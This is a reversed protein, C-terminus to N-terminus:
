KGERQKREYNMVATEDLEGQEQKLKEKEEEAARNAAVIEYRKQEEFLEALVERAQEVAAVAAFRAVELQRARETAWKVFAGYTSSTEPAARVAEQEIAQQTALQVVEQEIRDLISQQEALIQRQEDVRSKQLKILTAISKM